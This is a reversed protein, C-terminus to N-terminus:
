GPSTFKPEPAPDSGVLAHRVCVLIYPRSWSVLTRRFVMHRSGLLNVSYAAVPNRASRLYTGVWQGLPIMTLIVLLLIISILAAAVLFPWLLPQNGAPVVAWMQVDPSFSLLSSIAALLHKWSAFPLGVLIVLGGLAASDFLTNKEGRSRYCGVGFGVFCAILALNQFYAFVRVETGIWRILLMEIYLSAFSVFFLPWLTREEPETQLTFFAAVKM